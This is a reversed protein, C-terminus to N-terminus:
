LGLALAALRTVKRISLFPVMTSLALSESAMSRVAITIAHLRGLIFSYAASSTSDPAVINQGHQELYPPVASADSFRIFVFKFLLCFQIRATIIPDNLAAANRNRAPFRGAAIAAAPIPM